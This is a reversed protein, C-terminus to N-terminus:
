LEDKPMENSSAKLIDTESILVKYEIFLDGYHDDEENIPMGKGPIRDIQNNLVIENPGKSLKLEQEISDFFPIDRSWNGNLSEELTLVETRYLNNGIRRYGWNSNLDEQINIILDGPIWEPNEDGEGSLVHNHNRPLGPPIYISYKRHVDETGSGHCTGCKNKITNGKGGCEDCQMQMTQFMGPALQRRMQVMGQGGCKNCTHKQQDKSGTGECKSCINKMELNFSMDQGTYFDKLSVQMVAQKNEGRQVRRQRGARGGGAGGFFQNFIDGFDVNPEPSGNPDGYTDYNKKKEGDSLVDYAEGVEIFKEHAEESPNKDPHYMKSLRRYALKITKEDADKAIELIKYYDKAAAQVMSLVSVLLIVLTWKM